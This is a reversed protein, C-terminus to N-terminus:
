RTALVRHLEKKEKELNQGSRGSELSSLKLLHSKKIKIAKAKSSSRVIRRLRREQRMM